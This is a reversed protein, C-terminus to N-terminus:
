LVTCTAQPVLLVDPVRDRPLGKNSPSLLLANEIVVNYPQNASPRVGVDLRIDQDVLGPNMVEFRVGNSGLAETNVGPMTHSQFAFLKTGELTYCAIDAHWGPRYRGEAWSVDIRM